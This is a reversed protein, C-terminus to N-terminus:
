KTTGRFRSISLLGPSSSMVPRGASKPFTEKLIEADNVLGKYAVLCASRMQLLPLQQAQGSLGLLQAAERSEQVASSDQALGLQM